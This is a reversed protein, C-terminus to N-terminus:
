PWTNRGTQELTCSDYANVHTSGPDIQWMMWAPILTLFRTYMSIVKQYFLIFKVQLSTNFINSIPLLSQDKM